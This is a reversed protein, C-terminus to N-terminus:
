TADHDSQTPVAGREAEYGRLGNNLAWIAAQTRYTVGINRLLGHMIVKVTSETINLRNGIMRDSDGDLLCRLIDIDRQSFQKDGVTITTSM